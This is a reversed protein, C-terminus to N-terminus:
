SETTRGRYRRALEAVVVYGAAAVLAVVPTPEGRVVQQFALLIVFVGTGQLLHTRWPITETM